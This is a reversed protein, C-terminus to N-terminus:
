NCACDTHKSVVQWSITWTPTHGDLDCLADYYGPYSVYRKGAYLGIRTRQVSCDCVRKSQQYEMRLEPEGKQRVVDLEAEEGGGFLFTM